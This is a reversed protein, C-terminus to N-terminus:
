QSAGRVPLRAAARFRPDIRTLLYGNALSVTADEPSTEFRFAVRSGQVNGGAWELDNAPVAQLVRECTLGWPNTLKNVLATVLLDGAGEITAFFYALEIQQSTFGLAQLQDAQFFFYTSYKPFIKGYDDDAQFGIPNLTYVNGFGAITGPTKGNGGLFVPVLQEDGAVRYMMAAGNMAVNWLSWKRANDPATLKGRVSIHVPAATAIERATDLEKYSLMLIFNPATATGTPIGFYMAREVSDNLGWITKAVALNVADWDPQIEQTIKLPHDGGFIRVGTSSAWAFWEEGGAATTDDAQSKTLCFASLAGCDAAVESVGWGVPETIGANVAHLRGAPDRTVLYLTNRVIALDMVKRTDEEPGFEGSVGDFAEPNNIYSGFLVRDLFPQDAYLISVEDLLVIVSTTSAQAYMELTLDQPIVTPLVTDFDAEVWGGRTTIASGNIVATSTFGADVSSITAVIQVDNAAQSTQVWLRLRYRQNPVAIPAGYADRYMSQNLNGQPGAAATIGISWATGFHGPALQGNPGTVAWGTPLDPQSPLFGGDFGMNLLNIIRNRQGYAILRSNFYGFGLASDLVIQNALNNGPTSIGLSAFLTNDSFDLVVSTTTNDNIQTATSVQQGNVIAPVPIYFFYAGFAGTFALIRAIVNDPGIPLDTVQLYQGGNAVIRVPPSPATVYGQRNLFLVQMQKPGPAVQGSPTVKGVDTSVGPPGYQQYTFVTPSVVAKVFFTGNWPFSVVGTDWNGNSYNIAIQFTTPTPAEVVEFLSPDATDPLPWDLYVDGGSGTADASNQAYTFETDSPVALVSASTNFSATAGFITVAAGVSLGHATATVVNVIGGARTLSSIAAVQKKFVGTVTVRTGPVLGHAVDTTVVAIGPLDSNNITIDLVGAVRLAPVASIQARYGVQLNHPAATTATVVNASRVLTNGGGDPALDVPPYELNAVQACSGPGDQTVRDLNTGDYQLPVEQGHLGDSIAIYERGFATISKAYCGPTSDLLKFYVGPSALNEVWLSGNSDFYLNRTVGDPAVFSKAYTVTPIIPVAGAAPFPTAFVRKMGRRTKVGGPFFENDQEDGTVGEPLAEAPTQTVRSGFTQLPVTATGQVNYSM